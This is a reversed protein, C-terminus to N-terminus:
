RTRYLAQMQAILADRNLGHVRWFHKSLVHASEPGERHHETACLPLTETDSCRQSLGRLGVHAAETLSAQVCPEDEDRVLMGLHCVVCGHQRVFALYEPNEIRGRRPPGPRRKNIPKRRQM